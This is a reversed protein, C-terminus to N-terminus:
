IEDEKTKEWLNYLEEITMNEMKADMLAVLDEVKSFRKIFKDCSRQAALESDVGLMRSINVASFLADGIEEFINDGDNKDIAEKLESIESELAKLAWSLDPYAFGSKAARKQVKQARMLAPFVKPVSELTETYKTQGKSKQKIKDWNSLVEDTSDVNIDGFVHPHREVLKKCIGDAVDDFDFRNDERSLQSHFVVQLLVDGLEEKMMEDSEADIAEAVEYAEEIMNQRMSHHDQKRDWPCGNEGRLIKVIELLDEFSYRNKIKFLEMIRGVEKESQLVFM